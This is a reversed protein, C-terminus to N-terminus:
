IPKFFLKYSPHVVQYFIPVEWSIGMWLDQTPPSFYFCLHTSSCFLKNSNQKAPYWPQSRKQNPYKGIEKGPVWHHKENYINHMSRHRFYCTGGKWQQFGLQPINAWCICERRLSRGHVHPSPSAMSHPLHLKTAPFEMGMPDMYAIYPLM